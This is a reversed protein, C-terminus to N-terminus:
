DLSSTVLLSLHELKDTYPILYQHLFQLLLELYSNCNNIASNNSAVATVM